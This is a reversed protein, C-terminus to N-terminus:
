IATLTEAISLAEYARTVEAVVRAVETVIQLSCCCKCSLNLAERIWDGDRRSTIAIAEAKV